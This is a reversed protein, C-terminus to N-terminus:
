RRIPSVRGATRAPMRLPAASRQGAPQHTNSRAPATAAAQTVAAPPAERRATVVADPQVPEVAGAATESAIPLNASAIREALPRRGTGATAPTSQAVVSYTEAARASLACLTALAALCGIVVAQCTRSRLM